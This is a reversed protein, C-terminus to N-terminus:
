DDEAEEAETMVAADAEASLQDRRSARHDRWQDMMIRRVERFDVGLRDAVARAADRIMTEFQAIERGIARATQREVEEALVWRKEERENERRKKRADEEAGQIRALEYRDLDNPSLLGDAQQRPAPAPGVLTDVIAASAPQAAKLIQRTKAGNGLMQGPDLRRKLAAQVRDPDFRRQRGEGEYCGDLVGQSVYQSVRAKSVGLHSALETASLM